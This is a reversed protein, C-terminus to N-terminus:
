NADDFYSFQQKANKQPLSLTVNTNNNGYM